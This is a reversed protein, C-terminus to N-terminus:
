MVYSTVPIAIAFFIFIAIMKNRANTLRKESRSRVTGGETTSRSVERESNHTETNARRVSTVRDVERKHVMIENLKYSVRATVWLYIVNVIVSIFDLYIGYFNVAAVTGEALSITACTVLLLANSGM